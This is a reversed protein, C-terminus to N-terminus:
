SRRVGPGLFRIIWWRNGHFRSEEIDCPAAPATRLPVRTVMADCLSPWAFQLFTSTASRLWATDMGRRRAEMGRVRNQTSSEEDQDLPQGTVTHGRAVRVHNAPLGRHIATITHVSVSSYLERDRDRGHARTHHIRDSCAVTIKM